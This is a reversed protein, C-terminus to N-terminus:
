SALQHIAIKVATGNKIVVTVGYSEKIRSCDYKERGSFCRTQKNLLFSRTQQYVNSTESTASSVTITNGKIDTITGKIVTYDSAYAVSSIGSLGLLVTLIQKLM